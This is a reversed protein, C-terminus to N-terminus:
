VRCLISLIYTAWLLLGQLRMMLLQILRGLFQAIDFLKNVLRLNSSPTTNGHLCSQGWALLGRLGVQHLLM